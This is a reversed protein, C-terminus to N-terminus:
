CLIYRHSLLRIHVNKVCGFVQNQKYFVFAFPYGFNASSLTTATTAIELVEWLGSFGQFYCIALLLDTEQVTVKAWCVM